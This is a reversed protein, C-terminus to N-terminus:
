TRLVLWHSVMSSRQIIFSGLIIYMPWLDLRSDKTFWVMTFSMYTTGFVTIGLGKFPGFILIQLGNM